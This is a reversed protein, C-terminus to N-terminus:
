EAPVPRPSLGAGRVALCVWLLVAALLVCVVSAHVIDIYRGGAILLLGAAGPGVATGAAQFGAAAGALRGSPDLLAMATKFFPLLFLYGLMILVAGVTFGLSSTAYGITLNGSVMVLVGPALPRRLGWRQEAQRALYPGAVGAISAILYASSIDVVRLKIEAGIRETYGWLGNISLYFGFFAVVAGLQLLLAPRADELAPVSTALARGPAACHEDPLLFLTPLVVAALAAMTGFVARYGLHDISWPIAAYLVVGLAAMSLTILSFARHPEATRAAAANATALVLGEGFGALLRSALFLPWPPGVAAIGHGVLALVGGAVAAHRLTIRSFLASIALSATTMMVMQLSLVLGAEGPSIRYLETMAGVMFPMVFLSCEGLCIAGVLGLRLPDLRM